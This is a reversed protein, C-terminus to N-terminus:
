TLYTFSGEVKGRYGGSGALLLKRNGECERGSLLLSLHRYEENHINGLVVLQPVM